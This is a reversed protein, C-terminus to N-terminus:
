PKRSKWGQVRDSYELALKNGPDLRLTEAFQRLANDFQGEMALLVGLNLRAEAYTPRLRIAENYESVAESKRNDAALENGLEFHAEAAESKLQIARRYQEIAKLM